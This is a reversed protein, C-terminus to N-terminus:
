YTVGKYKVLRYKYFSNNRNFAKLDAKADNKLWHAYIADWKKTDPDYEEIIWIHTM